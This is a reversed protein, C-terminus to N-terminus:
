GASSRFGKEPQLYVVKKIIDKYYTYKIPNHNKM